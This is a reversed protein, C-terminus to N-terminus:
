WDGQVSELNEKEMDLDKRQAEYAEKWEKVVDPDRGSIKGKFEDIKVMVPIKTMLGLIVAEGVGLSPLQSKLDGSLQESAEQVYNLDSPEVLRLIIKNNTQSLSNPDLSKPRQSVLCLGVGFKRGEKAIRTIQYKSDTDRDRPALLHAEELITFVPFQLGEGNGKRVSKVYRKRESLIKQLTHSVIVDIAREDLAGLDIINVCGVKISSIIDPANTDLVSDYRKEMHRIKNVARFISERDKVTSDELYDELRGRLEQLYNTRTRDVRDWAKKLYEEQVYAGKSGINALNSLESFGLYIPNIKAPIRNVRGEGFEAESYESHIDFLVICSNYKLLGDIIVAVTNSKGGGTISLIALHKTVMKCVNVFVPVEPQTIIHGIRICRDRMDDRNKQKSEGFVEKLIEPGARKVITGPLPPVRPIELNSTDRVDGLIKINGTIYYDDGEIQKIKDIIAPDYIDEGISTSGRMLSEIMGLIKKGEYELIVFEGVTPMKKSIFGVSTPTAEGFCRGIIEDSM